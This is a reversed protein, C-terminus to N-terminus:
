NQNWGPRQGQPTLLLQIARDIEGALLDLREKIDVDHTAVQESIDADHAALDFKIDSDHQEVAAKIQTDHANISNFVDETRQYTGLIEANDISEQCLLFTEWVARAVQFVASVGGSCIASQPSGGNGLVVVVTGCGSIAADKVAEAVLFTGLTAISANTDARTSSCIETSYTADRLNVGTIRTSLGIDPQNVTSSSNISEFTDYVVSFQSLSEVVQENFTGLLEEGGMIEVQAIVSEVQALEGQGAISRAHELVYLIDNRVQEADRTDGSIRAIEITSSTADAYSNSALTSFGILLTVVFVRMENRFFVAM